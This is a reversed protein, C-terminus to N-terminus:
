LSFHTLLFLACHNAGQMAFLFIPVVYQLTFSCINLPVLNQVVPKPINFSELIFLLTFVYLYINNFTSLFPHHHYSLM